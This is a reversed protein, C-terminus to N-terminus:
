AESAKRISRREGFIATGIRVLTAGEEVAVEFNGTMGMSLHPLAMGSKRSVRDRHERLQQFYPRAKQPDDSFPTMTMLGEVVLHRLANVSKLVDNLQDPPIGFKSKEGSVNVELLVRQSKGAQAAERDLVEALRLSDVSHILDFLRIADRAKNTQLHGIMHWCLGGGAEPIKAHAEQIKNEGFIKMGLAAAARVM